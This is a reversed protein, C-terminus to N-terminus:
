PVFPTRSPSITAKWAEGVGGRAPALSFPLAALGGTGMLANTFYWHEGSALTQWLLRERIEAYGEWDDPLLYEEIWKLRYPRLQEALRVVHEADWAMWCDLMLEADDGITKRANAIM